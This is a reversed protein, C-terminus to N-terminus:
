HIGMTYSVKEAFALEKGNVDLATRNIHQNAKMEGATYLLPSHFYLSRGPLGDDFCAPRRRESNM